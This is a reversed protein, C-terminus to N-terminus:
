TTVTLTVNASTVSDAGAAGVVVKYETGDIANNADVVLSSTTNNSTEVIADGNAYSWDYVLVAGTPDSSAVVSFTATEDATSNATQNTPQTDISLVFVTSTLTANTSTVSDAGTASVVVKFEANTTQVATNVILTTQTTNGVNAGVAISDGNAYSWQYNLTAGAPVSSAETTFEATQTITNAVTDDPQNIIFIAFDPFVVDEIDGAISGGAVLVESQVRGARGGTGEWLRVWGAHAVKNVGSARAAAAEGADVGYVREANGFISNTNANESAEAAAVFAPKESLAYATGGSQAVVNAGVLGSTVACFTNNSITTILYNNGEAVIYNGVKAQTTFVTSSGVVNGTLGDANKTITVTGSATKSDNKGWLAM